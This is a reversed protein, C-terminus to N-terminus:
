TVNEPVERECLGEDLSSHPQSRTKQRLPFHDPGLNGQAAEKGALSM